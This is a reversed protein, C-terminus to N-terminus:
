PSNEKLKRRDPFAHNRQRRANGKGRSTQLLLSFAPNGGGNHVIEAVKL